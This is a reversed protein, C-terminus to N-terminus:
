EGVSVHFPFSCNETSYNGKSQLDDELHQRVALNLPLIFRKHQETSQVKRKGFFSSGTVTEDDSTCM